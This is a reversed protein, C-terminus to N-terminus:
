KNVTIIVGQDSAILVIKPNTPNIRILHYDDGGPAGRFASWSSGGDISKWIVVNASYVLDKNKPDVRIEAFDNGRGWYRVESQLKKWSEGTDDSTVVTLLMSRM